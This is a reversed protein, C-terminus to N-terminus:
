NGKFKSDNKKCEKKHEYHDIVEITAKAIAKAFSNAISTILVDAVFALFLITFFLGVIIFGLNKEVLLLLESM